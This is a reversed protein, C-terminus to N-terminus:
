HVKRVYLTETQPYLTNTEKLVSPSVEPPRGAEVAQKRSLRSKFSRKLTEPGIRLKPDHVSSNYRKIEALAASYAESDNEFFRARYAEDILGQRRIENFAEIERQAMNLDWSQVQRLTQFGLGQAILEARDFPSDLDYEIYQNLRRDREGGEVALRANRTLLRLSRPLAGEWRKFDTLSLDDNSVAKLINLPIGFAAGALGETAKTVATNWDAGPTLMATPSGPIIRQLAVGKSMDVDPVWHAGLMRAAASIGFSYRGIGHLLLDPPLTSDEGLMEVVIKRAERELNFDKGFLKRAIYNLIDEVDDPLLGMPGALFAMILMYRTIMSKNNWLMYLTGQTFMYFAFLVSKRGRMFKPRSLANYTYHTQQVTEKGALYALAESDNWGQNILTQYQLFHKAKVEGLWKNGPDKMALRFATRFSVRRNWKETMQFMYMAMSSFKLFGANIKDGVVSRGFASSLSSGSSIAALEAAMSEDVIGDLVAQNLAKLESSNQVSAALKGKTYYTTLDKTTNMFQKMTAVEGFHTMLYPATAVVTQTMNVLASAPVFGLHWLANISRFFGWDRSPNVFEKFVGEMFDAMRTRRQVDGPVKRYDRMSAIQERLYTDYKARAFFKAHSFFYQAYVRRGLLSYGDINTRKMMRKRYSMEPALEYRLQELWQQQVPTTGPMTLVKELLWPPLGVFPQVEQPVTSFTVSDQPNKRLLDYVRKAERKSEFLEFYTTKNNANRVTIAWKGFRQQPFYPKMVLKRSIAKAELIANQKMQPDSLRMAEAIQLDEIRKIAMLFDDRIDKYLAFTDQDMGHQKVLAALEQTTPWRKIGRQREQPTLYVMDNLDFLLATLANQQKSSRKRWRKVREESQVMINSAELQAMELLERFQQLEVIHPNADALQRFNMTLDYFWNFRDLHSQLNRPTQASQAGSPPTQGPGFSQSANPPFAPPLDGGNKIWDLIEGIQQSRPHSSLPVEGMYYEPRMEQRSRQTMLPIAVSAWKEHSDHYQYMSRLFGEIELEPKFLESPAVRSRVDRLMRIVQRAVDRFFRGLMGLPVRDTAAYRAVQEAFWEEFSMLYQPSRSYYEPSNFHETLPAVRRRYFHAFGKEGLKSSAAFRRYAAYIKLQLRLPAEIFRHASIVHGFEHAVVGFDQAPNGTIDYVIYSAQSGLLNTFGASGPSGGRVIRTIDAHLEPAFGALDVRKENGVVVRPILILKTDTMNLKKLMGELWKAMANDFPIKGASTVLEQREQLRMGLSDLAMLRWPLRKSMESSINAYRGANHDEAQRLAMENDNVDLGLVQWEQELLRGDLRKFKVEGNMVMLRREGSNGAMFRERSGPSVFDISADIFDTPLHDLYRPVIVGGKAEVLAKYKDLDIATTPVNSENSTTRGSTDRVNGNSDARFDGRMSFNKEVPAVVNAKVDGAFTKIRRPGALKTLEQVLQEKAREPSLPAVPDRTEADFRNVAQMVRTALEPSKRRLDTLLAKYKVDDNSEAAQIVAPVDLEGPVETETVEEPRVAFLHGRRLDGKGAEAEAQEYTDFIEPPKGEEAFGYMTRGQAAAETATMAPTEVWSPSVAANSLEEASPPAGDKEKRALYTSWTAEPVSGPIELLGELYVEPLNITGSSWYQGLAEGAAGGVAEIGTNVAAEAAAKGVGEKVFNGVISSGAGKVGLLSTLGDIAGVALGHKIMQDYAKTMMEPNQLVGLVQEPSTPDIKNQVLFDNFQSLGDSLGSAVGAGMVTGAIAGAANGVGPVASGAVGGVVGGGVAGATGTAISMAQEGMLAGLSKKNRLGWSLLAAPNANNSKVIESLEKLGAETDPDYAVADSEQQYHAYEQAAEEPTSVGIEKKLLALDRQQNAWSRSVSRQVGQAADRVFDMVPGIPTPTQFNPLGPAPM